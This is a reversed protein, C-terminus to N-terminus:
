SDKDILLSANFIIRQFYLFNAFLSFINKKQFFFNHETEFENFKCQRKAASPEGDLLMYSFDYSICLRLTSRFFDMAGALAVSTKANNAIIPPRQM